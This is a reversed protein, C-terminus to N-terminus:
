EYYYDWDLSVNNCDCMIHLMSHPNIKESWWELIQDETKKYLLIILANGQM